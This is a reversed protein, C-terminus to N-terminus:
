QQSLDTESFRLTYRSFENFRKQGGGACYLGLMVGTFGGAVESSLYKTEAQGLSVWRRGDRYFFAYVLPKGEVKLAVEERKTVVSKVCAVADGLRIKLSLRNGTGRKKLYFDYHHREDMYLTVGAEGSVARVTVCLSFYFERQALGLFSPCLDDLSQGGARIQIGADSFRYNEKECVRLYRFGSPCVIEAASPRVKLTRKPPLRDTNVVAPVTGDGVTFWGGDFTVPMLCTERGLHHYAQWRDIQRFALLVMWWNGAGDCVLDGHGAGQISYGGLNRNTLVPNKPYDSFPGWVSEGRAYTVMHGYETGGEAALLYYAGNIKYLHPAELYRGGSGSWLKRSETLMEGTRINIECQFIAGNGIGDTGNSMFYAHGDEFYLSPDIGPQEVFIPDSWNGHIDDTWVYFSRGDGAGMLVTTMYFRGEYCRITPAFSGGSSYVGRLPAQTERTLCFGISVWDVLNDSEYLAVGPFYQFTSVALYYKGNARCVSPDPAFGRIIPNRYEM